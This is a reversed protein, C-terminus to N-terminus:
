EGKKVTYKDDENIFQYQMNKSDILVFPRAVYQTNEAVIDLARVIRENVDDENKTNLLVGHAFDSSRGMVQFSEYRIVAFGSCIEYIVGQYVLLIQAKIYPFEDRKGMLLNEDKFVSILRPIVENVIHKRTLKGAKNLTFIDSNAIITQRELREASVGLLIGHDLKQIKLNCECLERTKYDKVIVRTDTGMYVTDGRKYAILISM